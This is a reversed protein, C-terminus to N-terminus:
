RDGILIGAVQSAMQAHIIFGAFDKGIKPIIDDFHLATM